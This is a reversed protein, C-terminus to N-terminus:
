IEPRMGRKKRRKRNVASPEGSTQEGMGRVGKKRLKDGSGEKLVEWRRRVAAAARADPQNILRKIEM